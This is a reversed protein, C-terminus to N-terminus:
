ELDRHTVTVTYGQQRLYGGLTETVYVSRHRGGTCGVAITFGSNRKEIARPLMVGLLIQVGSMFDSFASDQEIAQGVATDMGNLPALAPDYYPNKLFRADLLLNVDEPVPRKFSFSLIRVVFRETM